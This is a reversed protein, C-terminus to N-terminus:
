VPMSLMKMGASQRVEDSLNEGEFALTNEPDFGKERLWERLVSRRAYTQDSILQYVDYGLEGLWGELYLRRVEDEDEITKRTM